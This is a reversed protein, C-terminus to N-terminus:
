TWTDLGGQIAMGENTQTLGQALYDSAVTANGTFEHIAQTDAHVVPLTFALAYGAMYLLPKRM